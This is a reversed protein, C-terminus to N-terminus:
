ALVEGEISLVELAAEVEFVLPRYPLYRLVWLLRALTEPGSRTATPHQSFLERLAPLLESEDTIIKQPAIMRMDKRTTPPPQQAARKEQVCISANSSM